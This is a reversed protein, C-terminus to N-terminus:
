SNGLQDHKADISQDVKPRTNMLVKRLMANENILTSIKEELKSNNDQLEKARSELDNVYVKKRERAQQASVRNRLLRKLRRYEKDVPNRGRRRKEPLVQPSKNITATTPNVVSSAPPRTEVDPVTFLDEDSEELKSKHHSLLTDKNNNNWSSSSTANASAAAAEFITPRPLSM